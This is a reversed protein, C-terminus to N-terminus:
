GLNELAQFCCERPATIRPHYPVLRHDDSLNDVAPLELTVQGRQDVPAKEDLRTGTAALRPQKPENGFAGADLGDDQVIFPSNALKRSVSSM